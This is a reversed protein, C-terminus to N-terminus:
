PKMKKTSSDYIASYLRITIDAIGLNIESFCITFNHLISSNLAIFSFAHLDGFVMPEKYTTGTEIEITKNPAIIDKIEFRSYSSNFWPDTPCPLTFNNGNVLTTDIITNFSTDLYSQHLTIN